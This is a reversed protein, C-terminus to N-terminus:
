SASELRSPAQFRREVPRTHPPAATSMLGIWRPTEGNAAVQQVSAQPLGGRRRQEPDPPSWRRGGDPVMLDLARTWKREAWQRENRVAGQWVVGLSKVVRAAEPPQRSCGVVPGVRGARLPAPRQAAPRPDVGLRRVGRARLEAEDNSLMAWSLV